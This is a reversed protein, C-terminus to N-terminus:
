LYLILIDKMGARHENDTRQQSSPFNALYLMSAVRLESWNGTAIHLSLQCMFPHLFYIWTTLHFLYKSIDIISLNYILNTM